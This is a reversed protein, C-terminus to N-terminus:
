MWPNSIYTVLGKKSYGHIMTSYLHADKDFQNRAVEFLKEASAIDKNAFHGRIVCTYAKVNPKVRENMLNFYYLLKQMFVPKNRYVRNVISNLM